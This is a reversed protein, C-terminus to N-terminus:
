KKNLLPGLYKRYALALGTWVMFIAFFSVLGAITQGVIGLAEGTHLFRIYIRAQRGPTNADFPTWSVEEGSFRDLSLQARKTPERGNGHDVGFQNIRDLAKPVSITITRWNPDYTQAKLFLTDLALPLGALPEPEINSPAQRQPPEEGALQYVLDNAWGYYFVTVTSIVVILPLASWIGMVHHWNFDRARSTTNKQFVLRKKFRAWKYIKPLWLYIGSIVMFLFMLNATNTFIRATARSEGTMSFWRHFTMMSSFFSRVGLAGHGLIEGSYPNIYLSGDRGFNVVVPELESRRIQISRPAKGGMEAMAKGKLVEISLRDVDPINDLNYESEAMTIIQNEYTLLVGTVSMTLVILGALVGCVLHPWYLIERFTM